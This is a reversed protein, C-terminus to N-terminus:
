VRSWVTQRSAELRAQAKRFRLPVATEPTEEVLRQRSMAAGAGAAETKAILAEMEPLNQTAVGFIERGQMRGWLKQREAPSMGRTREKIIKLMEPLSHGALKWSAPMKVMSRFMQRGYIGAQTGLVSSTVAGFAMLESPTIGLQKLPGVGQMDEPLDLESSSVAMRSAMVGVTEATAPSPEQAVLMKGIIDKYSGASPGFAGKIARAARSAGVPNELLGSAGLRALFPRESAPVGASQLEISWDPPRKKAAM